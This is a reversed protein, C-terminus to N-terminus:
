LNRIFNCAPQYNIFLRHLGDLVNDIKDLHLTFEQDTVRDERDLPNKGIEKVVDVAHHLSLHRKLNPSYGKEVDVNIGCYTCLCFRPLERSKTLPRIGGVVRKKKKAPPESAATPAASPGPLQEGELVAANM